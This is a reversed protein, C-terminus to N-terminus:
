VWPSDNENTLIEQLQENLLEDIVHYKLEHQIGSDNINVREDSAEGTVQNELVCILGFDKTKDNLLSELQQKRTKM